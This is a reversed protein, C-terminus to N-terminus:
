INLKSGYLSGYAVCGCYYASSCTCTGNCNLRCVIINNDKVAKGKNVYKKDLLKGVLKGLTGALNGASHQSQLKSVHLM